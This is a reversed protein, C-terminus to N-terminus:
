ANPCHLLGNGVQRLSRIALLVDTIVSVYSPLLCNSVGLCLVMFWDFAKYM